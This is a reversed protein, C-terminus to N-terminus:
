QCVTFMGTQFCVQAQARPTSYTDRLTELSRQVDHWRQRRRQDQYMRCQVYANTGPSTGWSRCTADVDQAHAPAALALVAASAFLFKKM